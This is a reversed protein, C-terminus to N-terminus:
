EQTEEEESVCMIDVAHQNADYTISEAKYRVGEADEIAHSQLFEIFTKLDRIPIEVVSPEDVRMYFRVKM